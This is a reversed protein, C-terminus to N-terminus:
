TLQSRRWTSQSLNVSPYESIKCHLTVELFNIYHAEHKLINIKKKKKKALSEFIVQDKYAQFLLYTDLALLMALSFTSPSNKM